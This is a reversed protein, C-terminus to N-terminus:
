ADRKFKKMDNKMYNWINENIKGYLKMTKEYLEMYKWHKKM